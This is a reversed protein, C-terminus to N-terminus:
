DDITMTPHVGVDPVGKQIEFIFYAYQSRKIAVKFWVLGHM